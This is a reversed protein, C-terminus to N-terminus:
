RYAVVCQDETLAFHVKIGIIRIVERGDAQAIEQGHTDIGVRAAKAYQGELEPGRLSWCVGFLDAIGSRKPRMDLTRHALQKLAYVERVCVPDLGIQARTEPQGSRFRFKGDGDRAAFPQAVM